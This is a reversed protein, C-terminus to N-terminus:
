RINWKAKIFMGIGFLTASSLIGTIAGKLSKHVIAMIIAIVFGLIGEVMFFVCLIKLGMSAQSGVSKQAFFSPIASLFMGLLNPFAGFIIAIALAEFFVVFGSAVRVGNVYYAYHGGGTSSGFAGIGLVIGSILGIIVAAMQLGENKKSHGIASLIVAVLAGILYVTIFWPM